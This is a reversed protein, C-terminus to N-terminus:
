AARRHTAVDAKSQGVIVAAHQLAHLQPCGGLMNADAVQLDRAAQARSGTKLSDMRDAMTFRHISIQEFHRQLATLMPEGLTHGFANSQFSRNRPPADTGIVLPQEVIALGGPRLVRHIETLARDATADSLARTAVVIDFMGDPFTLNTPFMTRFRLGADVGESRAQSKAARVAETNADVGTVDYGIAAFRCTHSGVGVGVHLLQQWHGVFRQRLIQHVRAAPTDLHLPAPNSDPESPSHYLQM